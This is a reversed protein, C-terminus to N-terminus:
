LKYKLGINLGTNRWLFYEGAGLEFDHLYYLSASGSIKSTLNTEFGFAGEINKISFVGESFNQLIEYENLSTNILKHKFKQRFPRNAVIGFSVFPQLKKDNSFLYKIMIPVQI